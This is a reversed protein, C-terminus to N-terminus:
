ATQECRVLIFSVNDPAGSELCAALLAECAADATGTAAIAGIRSDPVCRTLGDSCLLFADGALVRDEVVDLALDEAVGVARTIVNALPHKEAQEPTLIGAEVLEGVQSHDRTIQRLSGGRLRYVRSDGAWLCAFRDGVIRLAVITAGMTAGAAASAEVIRANADALADALRECDSDIPARPDASLHVAALQGTVAMAAWQGNAHGGMGDAVAWLGGSPHCLISDENVRRVLGVHTRAGVAHSFGSAV